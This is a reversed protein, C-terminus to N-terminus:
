TMSGLRGEGRAQPRLPQESCSLVGWFMFVVCYGVGKTRIVPCTLLTLVSVCCLFSLSQKLFAPAVERGQVM